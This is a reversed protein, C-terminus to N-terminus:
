PDRLEFQRMKGDILLTFENLVDRGLVLFDGLWTIVVRREMRKNGFELNVLYSDRELQYGDLGGVPIRTRKRLKLRRVIPVPVATVDSGTDLVGELQLKLRPESPNQLTVSVVAAPPQFATSLPSM